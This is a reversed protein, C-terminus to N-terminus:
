RALGGCSFPGARVVDDNAASAPLQVRFRCTQRKWTLSLMNDPQLATVYAEGRRAVYFEEKDGEIRVVAGAPAPEGDDFQIKLLAAKGDRVAFDVKVASRWHPVVTREISEVEASIPLDSANVRVQNSQYPTLFPVLAIGGTDTKTGPTSGLGIAVDPYGKIEAIAFSQDVRKTFFSRGAAWVFGGSFGSRMATSESSASVDSFVRGYRGGYFVGAEAHGEKQLRGGLVRWGMDTDPGSVSTLTTYFDPGGASTSMSTQSQTREDLMLTFSVAVLTRTPVSLVRNFTMSVSSNKSIPLMYNGSITKAATGDQARVGALSLGITGASGLVHSVNGAWELRPPPSSPSSGLQAYERSAGQAQLFFSTRSWQRELGLVWKRGAGIDADKSAVWAGRGLFEYPLVSVLALGATNSRAGFEGRVELTLEDTLGRRWTGSTFKRGYDGSRLGINRRVAGIEASWDDLGRALLQASTFFPQVIVTERGLVDRVVMKAEGAGSVGTLNDIVFPGAPVDSVKRLVDNVYLQVTSPAASAGGILPVPQTIFGPTLAYNSGFQLGGYYVSSGWLGPRTATDGIRMTQASSPMNRTFTTELRLAGSRANHSNTLDRGVHSSTLVGWENSMGLELLGGLNRQLSGLKQKSLDLNLDYNVFVSPLVPSTKLANADQTLKTAFFADPAFDIEVVQTSYNIKYAFGSVASLPWYEVGRVIIPELGARMQVRWEEFADQAVYLQGQREVFAWTGSKKQNVLAEM